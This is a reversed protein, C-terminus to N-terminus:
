SPHVAFHGENTNFNDFIIPAAQTSGCLLAVAAALAIIHSKRMM